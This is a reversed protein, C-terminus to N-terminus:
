QYRKLINIVPDSTLQFHPMAILALKINRMVKVNQRIWYSYYIQFIVLYMIIILDYYILLSSLNQSRILFINDELLELYIAFCQYTDRFHSLIIVNFEQSNLFSLLEDQSQEEDEFVFNQKYFQQMQTVLSLIGQSLYDSNDDQAYYQGYQKIFEQQNQKLKLECFPLLSSMFLCIDQHLLGQAEETSYDLQLDKILQEYLQAFSENIETYINNFLKIIEERDNLDKELFLGEQKLKEQILFQTKIILATSALNDIKTSFLAFEVLLNNLPQLRDKQSKSLSYGGWLYAQYILVFVLIKILHSFLNIKTNFNRVSKQIQQGFQLKQSISLKQRPQYVSADQQFGYNYYNYRKWSDEGAQINLAIYITYSIENEVENDKIRGVLLALNRNQQEINNWQFLQILMVFFIIVTHILHEVVFISSELEQNDLSSNNLQNMLHNNIDIVEPLNYQIILAKDIYDKNVFNLFSEKDFYSIQVLYHIAEELFNLLRTFEVNESSKMNYTLTMNSLTGDQEMKLFIPYLQSLNSFVFQDLLSFQYLNQENSYQSNNLINYKTLIFNWSISLTKCFYRNFKLPGMFQESQLQEQYYNSIIHYNTFSFGGVSILNICYVIIWLIIINKPLQGKQKFVIQFFYSQNNSAKSIASSHQSQNPNQENETFNNTKSFSQIKKERKYGQKKSEDDSLFEDLFKSEESSSNRIEQVSEMESNLAIEPKFFCAKPTQAISSLQQTMLMESQNVSALQRSYMQRKKKITSFAQIDGYRRKSIILDKLHRLTSKKMTSDADQLAFLETAIEGFNHKRYDSIQMIYYGDNQYKQYQLTFRVFCTKQSTVTQNIYEKVAKAYTENLLNLEILIPNIDKSAQLTSTRIQLSQKKKFNMINGFDNVIFKMQQQFKDHFEKIEHHSIFITDESFNINDFADKQRQQFRKVIDFLDPMFYYLFCQNQLVTLESPQHKNNNNTFLDYYVQRTVGLIKGNSDFLLYDYKKVGSFFIGKIVYDDQYSFDNALKLYLPFIFNDKTKGFILRFQQMFPSDGKILFKELMSNHSEAMFDPMLQNLHIINQFEEVKKYNFMHGLQQKNTNLISGLSQVLSVTVISVKDLVLAISNLQDQQLTQEYSYILYYQKECLFSHLQDNMIISYYLSLMRLHYLNNVQSINVEYVDRNIILKFKIRLQELEQALKVLEQQLQKVSSFGKLQKKWIDLKASLTKRIIPILIDSQVDLHVLDDSTFNVFSSNQPLIKSYQQKTIEQSLKNSIEIQVLNFYWSLEQKYKIQYHKIRALSQSYQKNQFALYQIKFLFLNEDEKNSVQCNVICTIVDSSDQSRCQKNCHIIHQNVMGIQLLKETQTLTFQAQIQFQRLVKIQLHQDKESSKTFTDLGKAYFLRQYFTEGLYFCMSSFIFYYIYQSFTTEIINSLNNLILNILNCGFKIQNLTFILKSDYLSYPMYLYIDIQELGIWMLASLQKLILIEERDDYFYLIQTVFQFIQSVIKLQSQDRTYTSQNFSINRFLICSIISISFILSVDCIAWIQLILNTEEKLIFSRFSSSVFLFCMIQPLLALYTILGRTLLVLQRNFYALQLIFLVMVGINVFTTIFGIYDPLFNIDLISLKLIQFFISFHGDVQKENNNIEQLTIALYQLFQFMRIFLIFQYSQDFCVHDDNLLRSIYNKIKQM